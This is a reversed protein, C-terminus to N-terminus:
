PAVGSSAREPRALRRPYQHGLGNGGYKKKFAIELNGVEPLHELYPLGLVYDRLARDSRELSVLYEIEATSTFSCFRHVIKGAM